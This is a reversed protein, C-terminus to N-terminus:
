DEGDRGGHGKHKGHGKGHGKGHEGKRRQPECAPIRAVLANAASTLPEQYRSPIQAEEAIVDDLLKAAPARAACGQQAAVADADAALQQAVAAPIPPPRKPPPSSSSGCGALAIAASSAVLWASRLRM